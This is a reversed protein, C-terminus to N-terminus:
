DSDRCSRPIRVLRSAHSEAHRVEQIRVDALLPYSPQPLARQLQESRVGLELRDLRDQRAAGLIVLEEAGHRDVDRVRHVGGHAGPLAHEELAGLTGVQIQIM